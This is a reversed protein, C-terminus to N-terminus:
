QGNGQEKAIRYRLHVAAPTHVVRTSELHVPGTGPHHEFLRRGRGLLVPALHIRIEDLLGAALCQDAIDAGGMVHVNKGGAVAEAQKVASAVGDDVFTFPAGGEAVREPAGHSVVFVPVTGLPGDGWGGPAASIDYTRRGAVVAGATGYMEALVEADPGTRRVFAWDHLVDGGEGLPRDRDDDPGAVFGDLSMTIDLIVQGM